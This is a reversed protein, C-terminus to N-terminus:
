VQRTRRPSCPSARAPKPPQPSPTPRPAGRPRPRGPPLDRTPIGFSGRASVSSPSLALPPPSSSRLRRGSFDSSRPGSSLKGAESGILTVCGGGVAPSLFFRGYHSHVTLWVV